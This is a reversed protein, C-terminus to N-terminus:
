ESSRVVLPDFIIPVDEDGRVGSGRVPRLQRMGCWYKELAEADERSVNIRRVNSLYEAIANAM